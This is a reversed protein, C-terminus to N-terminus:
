RPLDPHHVVLEFGEETSPPVFHLTFLDFQEDSVTFEHNGSQNRDRLRAKCVEDAVDLYHLRHSCGADEFLSRMWARNAVTNAPFDLVISLGSGLLEVLHPTIARRLRASSRAYDALSNLEGPYLHALWHDERVVISGHIRALETVLTSKGSAIKGCVLHLTSANSLM